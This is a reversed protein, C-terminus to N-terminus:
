MPCDVPHHAPQAMHITAVDHGGLVARASWGCVGTRMGQPRGRSRHPADALVPAAVSPNGSRVDLFSAFGSV